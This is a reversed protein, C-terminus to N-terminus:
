RPRQSAYDTPTDLDRLISNTEVPLYEIEAAHAAFLDRLTAPPRLELAEQWLSRSIIWPHGRRMHFSPAVLPAGRERYLRLVAQVISVEIQPQDGLAVLTADVSLSLSSLGVQLSSTMEGQDFAPNFVLRAPSGKLVAEVQHCAGGTVVVIEKLGAQALVSVVRGIVTTAGWPLIMKPTGM